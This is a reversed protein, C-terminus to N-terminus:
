NLDRQLLSWEPEQWLATQVSKSSATSLRYNLDTPEPYKPSLLLRFRGLLHRFHPLVAGNFRVPWRETRFGKLHACACCLLIALTSLGLFPSQAQWIHKMLRYPLPSHGVINYSHSNLKYCNEPRNWRTQSENSFCVNRPVRVWIYGGFPTWLPTQQSDLSRKLSGWPSLRFLLNKTTM